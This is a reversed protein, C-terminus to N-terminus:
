MGMHPAGFVESVRLGYNGNAVVVEGRAILKGDLLLDAADHIERDLELVSGPGLELVEKLSMQRAGFRLTVELELDLFFGLRTPDAGDSRSDQEISSQEVAAKAIVAEMEASLRWEVAIPKPASESTVIWGIAAPPWPFAPTLSISLTLGPLNEKGSACVYEAVQRFLEELPARHETATEDGPTEDRLFVKALAVAAEVPIRFGMEGSAPGSSTVTVFVDTSSEAPREPSVESLAFPFPAGEAQGLVLGLSQAWLQVFHQAPHESNEATAM